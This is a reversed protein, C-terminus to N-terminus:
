LDWLCHQRVANYLPATRAFADRDKAELQEEIQQRLSIALLVMDVQDRVIDQLAAELRRRQDTRVPMAPNPEAVARYWAPIEGAFALMVYLRGRLHQLADIAELPDRVLMACGRHLQRVLHGNVISVEERQHAGLQLEFGALASGEEAVVLTNPLFDRELVFSVRELLEPTEALHRLFRLSSPNKLRLQSFHDIVERKARLM